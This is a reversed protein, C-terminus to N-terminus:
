LNNRVIQIQSVTPYFKPFIAFKVMFNALIASKVVVKKSIAFKVM